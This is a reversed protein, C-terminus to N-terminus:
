FNMRGARHALIGCIWFSFAPFKLNPASNPPDRFSPGWPLVFSGKIGGGWVTGIFSRLDYWNWWYAIRLYTTDCELWWETGEGRQTHYFNPFPLLGEVRDYGRNHYLKCLHYFLDHMGAYVFACFEDVLWSIRRFMM